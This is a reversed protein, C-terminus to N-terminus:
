SQGHEYITKLVEMYCDRHFYFKDPDRRPIQQGCYFVYEEITGTDKVCWECPLVDVEMEQMKKTRDIEKKLDRTSLGEDVAKELFNHRNNSEFEGTEDNYTDAFAATFHHSFSLNAVREEPKYAKSVRVYNMITSTALGLDMGLELAAEKGLKARCDAVLDALWWSLATQGAIFKRGFAKYDDPTQLQNSIQPDLALSTEVPLAPLNDSM